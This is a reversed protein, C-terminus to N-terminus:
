KRKFKLIDEETGSSNVVYLKIYTDTIEIVKWDENLRELIDHSPFEMFLKTAENLSKWEGSDVTTSTKAKVVGSTEFYFEFPEFDATKDEGNDLYQEVIWISNASTLADSLKDGSNSGKNCLSEFRLIDDGSFLSVRIEDNDDQIEHLTWTKNFKDFGDVHITIKIDNADGSASWEGEFIDGNKIIKLYGNDKFYFTATDYNDTYDEGNIKLKDVKWEQCEAFFQNLIDTTCDDCDDDDYDNDDDEDCSNIANSIAEELEELNNITVITDSSLKVKIPFNITVAAYQELDNLLNYLQEDDELTITLILENSENFVSASFPYEFDLCEIDDDEENEGKCDKVLEELEEDSNVTVESHIFYISTLIFFYCYCVTM